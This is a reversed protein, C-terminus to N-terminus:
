PPLIFGGQYQNKGDKQKGTKRQFPRELAEFSHPTRSIEKTGSFVKTSTSTMNSITKSHVIRFAEVLSRIVSLSPVSYCSVIVQVFCYISLNLFDKIKM